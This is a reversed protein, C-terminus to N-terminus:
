AIESLSEPFEDVSSGAERAIELANLVGTRLAAAEREHRTGEILLVRSIVREGCHFRGALISAHEHEGSAILDCAQEWIRRRIAPLPLSARSRTAAKSPQKRTAMSSALGTRLGGWTDPQRRERRGRALHQRKSKAQM